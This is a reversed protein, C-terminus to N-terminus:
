FPVFWKGVWFWDILSLVLCSSRMNAQIPSADFNFQLNLARVSVCVWDLAQWIILPPRSGCITIFPFHSHSSDLDRVHKRCVISQFPVRSLCCFVNMQTHTISISSLAILLRGRRENQWWWWWERKHNLKSLQATSKSIWRRLAVSVNKKSESDM